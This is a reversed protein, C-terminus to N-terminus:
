AVKRREDAEARGALIACRVCRNRDEFVPDWAVPEGCGVCPTSRPPAPPAPAEKSEPPLLEAPLPAGLQLTDVGSPAGNGIPELDDRLRLVEMRHLAEEGRLDMWERERDKLLERHDGLLSQLTAGAAMLEAARRTTFGWPAPGRREEETWGVRPLNDKGGALARLDLLRAPPFAARFDKHSALYDRVSHEDLQTEGERGGEPWLVRAGECILQLLDTDRTLVSVPFGGARARRVLSAIVDDAEMGPVERTAMNWALFASRLTDTMERISPGDRGDRDAKYGPILDRRFSHEPSDLAVLLHTAEWRRVAGGIMKRVAPALAQLRRGAAAYFARAMLNSGDVVLLHPLRSM